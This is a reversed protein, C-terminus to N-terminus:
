CCHLCYIYISLSLDVAQLKGIKYEPESAGESDTDLVGCCFGTPKNDDVDSEVQHEELPHHHIPRNRRVPGVQPAVRAAALVGDSQAVTTSQETTIGGALLLDAVSM